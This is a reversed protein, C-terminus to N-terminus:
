CDPVMRILESARSFDLAKEKESDMATRKPASFDRSQCRRIATQLSLFLAM